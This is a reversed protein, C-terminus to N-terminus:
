GGPADDVRVYDHHDRVGCDPCTWDDPFQAIPTGPPFGEREDGVSEDYIRGCEPCTYKAM